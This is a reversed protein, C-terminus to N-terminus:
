CETNTGGKQSPQSENDVMYKRIQKNVRYTILRRLRTARKEALDRGM